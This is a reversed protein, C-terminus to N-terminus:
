KLKYVFKKHTHGFHEREYFRHAAERKHSSTVELQLVGRELAMEKLRDLLIKGAGHGRANERVYMEQIEGVKGGHHLLNQIHCSVFGIPLNRVFAVLYIHEPNGANELYIEWQLREDFVTYELENVFEYIAPFDEQRAQRIQIAEM